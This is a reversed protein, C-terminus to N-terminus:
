VDIRWIFTDDGYFTILYKNDQTLAVGYFTGATPNEAWRKATPHVAIGIKEGTGEDFLTIVGQIYRVVLLEATKKESLEARYKSKPSDHAEYFSKLINQHPKPMESCIVIERTVYDWLKVEKFDQICVQNRGHIFLANPPRQSTGRVGSPVIGLERGTEWEVVRLAYSLVNSRKSKWETLGDSKPEKIPTSAGFLLILKSDPSIDYFGNDHYRAVLQIKAKVKGKNQALCLSTAAVFLLLIATIRRISIM